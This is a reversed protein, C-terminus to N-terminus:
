VEDVDDDVEPETFIMVNRENGLVAYVVFPGPVVVRLTRGSVVTGAGSFPPRLALWIKWWLRRMVKHERQAARERSRARGVRHRLAPVALKGTEEAVARAERRVEPM